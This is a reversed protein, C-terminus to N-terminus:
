SSPEPEARGTIDEAPVQAAQIVAPEDDGGGSRSAPLPGSRLAGVWVGMLVLAGGLVFTLRVPEALILAALAVAALPKFLHTYAYGSATWRGIIFLALPFLLVTGPVVLFALAMWTEPRGPLVWAENAAVSLVLLIPLVLLGGVANAAIPDGPPLRKIVVATIASFLMAGALASLASVGVAAALQDSVVIVTGGAALLAGVAGHLSFRELGITAAIALTALPALAFALAGMSASSLGVGVYLLATSIVFTLSFLVTGLLSAGRPFPIRLRFAIAAFIPVAIAYRLAAAWFPPLEFSGLRIAVSVGGSILIFGVFAALTVRDPRLETPGTV